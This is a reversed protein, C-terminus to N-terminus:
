LLSNCSTNFIFILFLTCTTLSPFTLLSSFFYCSFLFRVNWSTACSFLDNRPKSVRYFHHGVSWRLVLVTQRNYM